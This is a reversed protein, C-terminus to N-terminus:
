YVLAQLESMAGSNRDNTLVLAENLRQGDPRIPLAALESMKPIIQPCAMDVFAQGYQQFPLTQSRNRCATGECLSHCVCLREERGVAARHLM